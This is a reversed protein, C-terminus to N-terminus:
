EGESHGVVLCGQSSANEVAAAEAAGRQGQCKDMDWRKRGVGGEGAGAQESGLGRGRGEEGRVDTLTSQNVRPAATPLLRVPDVGAGGGTGGVGGLLSFFCFFVM